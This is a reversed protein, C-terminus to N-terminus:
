DYFILELIMTEKDNASYKFSKLVQRSIIFETVTDPRVAM